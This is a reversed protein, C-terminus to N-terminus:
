IKSCIGDVLHECAMFMAGCTGRSPQPRPNAMQARVEDAYRQLWRLRKPTLAEYELVYTDSKRATQVIFRIGAISMGTQLHYALAYLWCQQDLTYKAAFPAELSDVSDSTKVDNVWVGENESLQLGRGESLFDIAGTHELGLVDAPLHVPVECGLVRGFAGPSFKATFADYMDWASMMTAPHTQNLNIPGAWYVSCRSAYPRGSVYGQVLEGFMTGRLLKNPQNVQEGKANVKVEEPDPPWGGEPAVESLRRRYNEDAKLSCGLYRSLNSFGNPGSSTSQLLLSERLEVM